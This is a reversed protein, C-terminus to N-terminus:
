QLIYFDFFLVYFLLCSIFFAGISRAYPRMDDSLFHLTTWLSLVIIHSKKTFTLLNKYSFCFILGTSTLVFSFYTLQLLFCFLCFRLTTLDLLFLVFIRRNQCGFNALVSLFGCVLCINRDVFPKYVFIQTTLRFAFYGGDALIEHQCRLIVFYGCVGGKHRSYNEALHFLPIEEGVMLEERGVAVAELSLFVQPSIIRSYLFVKATLLDISNRRFVSPAGHKVLTHGEAATFDTAASYFIM